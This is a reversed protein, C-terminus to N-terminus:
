LSQTTPLDDGRDHNDNVGSLIFEHLACDDHHKRYCEAIGEANDVAEDTFVITAEETPVIDYLAQFREGMPSKLVQECYFKLPCEDPVMPSLSSTSQNLIENGM